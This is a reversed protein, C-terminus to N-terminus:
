KISIPKLGKYFKIAEKLRSSSEAYITILKDKAKVKDNKHV